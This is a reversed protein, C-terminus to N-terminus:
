LSQTLGWVTAIGLAAAFGGLWRSTQYSGTTMITVVETAEPGRSGVVAGVMAPASRGLGFGLGYFMGGMPGAAASVLAGAYVLPTAMATMLGSGLVAGFYVVGLWGRQVRSRSAQRGARNLPFSALGALHWFGAAGFLLAAAVLAFVRLTPTAGLLSLTAYALASAPGAGLVFAGM